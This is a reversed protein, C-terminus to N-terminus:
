VFRALFTGLYAAGIGVAPSFFIYALGTIVQNNKLLILAEYSFTSFTTFGGCFGTTLFLISTGSLLPHLINERSLALSLIFGLIFSGLINILFTGEYSSGFHKTAILSIFYRLCAGLGGGIFVCIINIIFRDEMINIIYSYAKFHFYLITMAPCFSTLIFWNNCNFKIQQGCYM